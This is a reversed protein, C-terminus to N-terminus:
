SAEVLGAQLGQFLLAEVLGPLPAELFSPPEVVVEPAPQPPSLPAQSCMPAVPTHHLLRPRLSCSCCYRLLFLRALRLRLLRLEPLRLLLKGGCRLLLRLRLSCCCM